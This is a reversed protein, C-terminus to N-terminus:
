VARPQDQGVLRGRREVGVARAAGPIVQFVQLRFAASKHDARVAHLLRLMQCAFDADHGGPARERDAAHDLQATTGAQLRPLFDALQRGQLVDVERDHAVVMLQGFSSRRLAASTATRSRRSATLSSRRITAMTPRVSAMGMPEAEPTRASAAKPPPVATTFRRERTPANKTTKM